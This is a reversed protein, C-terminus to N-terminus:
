NYIYPLTSVISACLCNDCIGNALVRTTPLATKPCKVTPSNYNMIATSFNNM